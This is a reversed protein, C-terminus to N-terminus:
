HSSNLRTSKRDELLWCLALWCGWAAARVGLGAWRQVRPRRLVLSAVLLLLSPFLSFACDWGLSSLYETSSTLTKDM